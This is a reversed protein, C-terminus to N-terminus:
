LLAQLYNIKNLLILFIYNDQYRQVGRVKITNGYIEFMFIPNKKQVFTGVHPLFIHQLIQM